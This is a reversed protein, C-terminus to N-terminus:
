EGLKTRWPASTINGSASYDAMPGTGSITITDGAENISWTVNSGDGEAGCYWYTPGEVYNAKVTVAKAPMTFTTSDANADAFTVGDESTWHSFKMREIDIAKINVTTGEAALSPSANGDSVTVNYGDVYNATITVAKAPMTFTTTAENANEFSVDNSTWKTFIKGEIDKPTITVTTGEAALFPSASGDIVTVNYGEVYNATITVDKAPMTFTTTTVNVDAFEVDDGSWKSFLKGEAPTNAKINVTKGAVAKTRNATGDVMTITYSTADIYSGSISVEHDPMVFTAIEATADDFIVDQGTSTWAEFAKGEIDDAKVTVTSGPAATAVATGGTMNVNYGQAFEKNYFYGTNLNKGAENWQDETGRYILKSVKCGNFAYPDIKVISHPIILETMVVNNFAYYSLIKTGDPIEYSTTTIPCFKLDTGTKDFLVGNKSSYYKNLPDVNVANICYNGYFANFAIEYVNSPINVESIMFTSEFVKSGIKLLSEPFVVKELEQLEKFTYDPINTVGEEVVAEKIKTNRSEYDRWPYIDGSAMKHWKIEGNGSITLKYYTIENTTEMKTLKWTVSSGDGTAGCTGSAVVEPEDAKVRVMGQPLSAAVM